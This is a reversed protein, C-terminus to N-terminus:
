KRRKKGRLKPSRKKAPTATSERDIADKLEQGLYDDLSKETMTDLLGVGGLSNLQRFIVRCRRRAANGSVLLEDKHKALFRLVSRLIMDSRGYSRELLNKTIDLQRLLVATLEYPNKTNAPDYTLYAAWWLRAIGNRMLCRSQARPVFYREAIYRERQNRKKKSADWRLRMYDWCEVHCLRAWFGQDCAQTRNLTPFARHLQMANELDYTDEPTPLKLELSAVPTVGATATAEKGQGRLAWSTSGLYHPVHRKIRHLLTGQFVDTFPLIPTSSRRPTRKAM